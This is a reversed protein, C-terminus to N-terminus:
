YRKQGIVVDGSEADEVWASWRTVGHEDGYIRYTRGSRVTFTLDIPAGRGGPTGKYARSIYIATVTHIGAAVTVRAVGDNSSPATQVGDVRVIKVAALESPAAGEVVVAQGSPINPAVYASQGGCAVVFLLMLTLVWRRM